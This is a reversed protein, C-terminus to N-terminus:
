QEAYTMLRYTLHNVAGVLKFYDNGSIFTTFVSGNNYVGAIAIATFNQREDQVRDITEPLGCPQDPKPFQVIVLHPRSTAKVRIRPKAQM